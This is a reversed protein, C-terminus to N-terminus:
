RGDREEVVAASLGLGDRRSELWTEVEAELARVQAGSLAEALDGIPALLGAAALQAEVSSTSDPLRDLAERIVDAETCGRQAAIVKLKRDHRRELYVQKRVM